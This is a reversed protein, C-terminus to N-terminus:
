TKFVWFMKIEGLSMILITMHQPLVGGGGPSPSQERLVQCHQKLNGSTFTIAMNKM